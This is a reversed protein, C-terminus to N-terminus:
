AKHHPDFTPSPSSISLSSSGFNVPGVYKSTRSLALCAFSRRLHFRASSCHNTHKSDRSVRRHTTHVGNFQVKPVDHVIQSLCEDRPRDFALGSKLTGFTHDGRYLDRIGGHLGSQTVFWIGFRNVSLQVSRSPM